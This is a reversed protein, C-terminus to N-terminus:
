VDCAPKASEGQWYQEDSVHEMWTVRSGDLSEVVALHSMATTASGGHWHRVDPPIWVVDGPRVTQVERGESQVWGCGATVILSQGLPHTHWATRAGGDFHVMAGSARGPAEAAFSSEVLVGGTFNDASGAIPDGPRQVSLQSEPEGAMASLATTLLVATYRFM